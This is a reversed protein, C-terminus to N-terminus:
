EHLDDLIEDLAEIQGYYIGAMQNSLPVQAYGNSPDYPTGTVDYYCYVVGLKREEVRARFAAKSFRPKM